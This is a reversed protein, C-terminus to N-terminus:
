LPREWAMCIDEIVRLSVCSTKEPWLHCSQWAWWSISGELPSSQTILKRRSIPSGHRVGLNGSSNQKLFCPLFPNTARTSPVRCHKTEIKAPSSKRSGQTKLVGFIQCFETWGVQTTQNCIRMLPIAINVLKHKTCPSVSDRLATEVPTKKRDDMEFRPSAIKLWKVYM